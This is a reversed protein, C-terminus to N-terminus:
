DETFYIFPSFVGEDFVVCVFIIDFSMTLIFYM